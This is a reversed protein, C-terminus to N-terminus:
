QLNHSPDMQFGSIWQVKPLYSFPHITKLTISLAKPFIEWKQEEEYDKEVNLSM